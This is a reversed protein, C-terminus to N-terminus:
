IVSCTVWVHCLKLGFRILTNYRQQLRWHKSYWVPWIVNKLVDVAKHNAYFSWGVEYCTQKDLNKRGWNAMFTWKIVVLVRTISSGVIWLICPAQGTFVQHTNANYKDVINSNCTISHHVTCICTCTTQHIKSVVNVVLVRYRKHFSSHCVMPFARSQYFSFLLRILRPNRVISYLLLM